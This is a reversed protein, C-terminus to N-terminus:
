LRSDQIQNASFKLHDFRITSCLFLSTLTFSTARTVPAANFIMDKVERRNSYSQGLSGHRVLGWTLAALAATLGMYVVDMM